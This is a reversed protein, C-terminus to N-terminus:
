KTLFEYAHWSDSSLMAHMHSSYLVNPIIADHSLMCRHESRMITSNVNAASKSHCSNNKHQLTITHKPTLFNCTPSTSFFNLHSYLFQLGQCTCHWQPMVDDKYLPRHGDHCNCTMIKKTHKHARTNTHAPTTNPPIPSNVYPPLPTSQSVLSSYSPSPPTTLRSGSQHLRPTPWTM